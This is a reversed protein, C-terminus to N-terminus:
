GVPVICGLPVSLRYYLLMSPCTQVPSVGVACEAGTTLLYALESLGWHDKRGLRRWAVDPSSAKSAVGGKILVYTLALFIANKGAEALCYLLVPGRVPSPHVADLIDVVESWSVNIGLSSSPLVTASQEFIRCLHALNMWSVRSAM